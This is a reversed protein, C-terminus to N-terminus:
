CRNQKECLFHRRPIKLFASPRPAAIVASNALPREGFRSLRVSAWSAKSPVRLFRRSSRRSLRTARSKRTKRKCMHASQAAIAMTPSPAFINDNADRYRASWPNESARWLFSGAPEASIVSFPRARDRRNSAIVGRSDTEIDRGAFKQPNRVHFHALISNWACCLLKERRSAQTDKISGAVSERRRNPSLRLAASCVM